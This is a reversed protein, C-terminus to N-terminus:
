HCLLRARQNPNQRPEEQQDIRFVKAMVPRIDFDAPVTLEHPQGDVLFTYQDFWGKLVIWKPGRIRKKM